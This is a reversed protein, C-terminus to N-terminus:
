RRRGSVIVLAGLVILILPLTIDSRFVAFFFRNVLFIGGVAVLLFGLIRAGDSSGGDESEHVSGGSTVTRGQEASGRLEEPRGQSSPRVNRIAAAVDRAVRAGADAMEAGSKALRLRIDEGGDRLHTAARDTTPEEPVIIWAAIYAVIPLGGTLLTAVVLVLRLLVPDADLYAGLGAVVGGLVKGKRSRYLRKNM